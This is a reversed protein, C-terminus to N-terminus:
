VVDDSLLAYKIIIIFRNVHSLSEQRFDLFCIAGVGVIIFMGM